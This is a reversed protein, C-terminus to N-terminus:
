SEVSMGGWVKRGKHGPQKGREAGKEKGAVQIWNVARM